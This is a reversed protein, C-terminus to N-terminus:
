KVRRLIKASGELLYEKDSRNKIDNYNVNWYDYAEKYMLNYSHFCVPLLENTSVYINGDVEMEFLQYENKNLLLKYWSDLSSEDTLWMCSYRSPKDDFCKCRVEELILERIDIQSNKIYNKILYFLKEKDKGNMKNIKDLDLLENIDNRHNIKMGDKLETNKIYSSSESLFDERFINSKGGIYITNGVKYLDDYKNLKHIHYLKM